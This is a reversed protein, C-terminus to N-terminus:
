SKGCSKRVHSGWKVNIENLSDKTIGNKNFPFTLCFFTLTFHKQYPPYNIQVDHNLFDDNIYCSHLFTSIVKIINIIIVM